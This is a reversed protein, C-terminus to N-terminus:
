GSVDAAGDLVCAVAPLPQVAELLEGGIGADVCGGGREAQELLVEEELEVPEFGVDARGEDV